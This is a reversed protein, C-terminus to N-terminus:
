GSRGAPAWRIVGPKGPGPVSTLIQQVFLAAFEGLQAPVGVAALRTAGEFPPLARLQARGTSAYAVVADRGIAALQKAAYAGHWISRRVVRRRPGSCFVHGDFFSLVDRLTHPDWLPCGFVTQRLGRRPM